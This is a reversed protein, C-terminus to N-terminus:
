KNAELFEKVKTTITKDDTAKLAEQITKLNKQLQKELDLSNLTKIGVNSPLLKAIFGKATGFTALDFVQAAGAGLKEMLNRNKLKQQLKQVDAAMRAVLKQTNITSALVADIEKSIPDNFKERLLRKLDKRTNEAAQKSLGSALQGNANFGTLDAGHMRALDNIDKATLEGKKLKQELEVITKLKSTSNTASYFDKLEDISTKVPSITVTSGDALKVKETLDKLKFVQPSTSLIEDQKESLFRVQDGLSDTLEKYSFPKSTDIDINSLAQKAQRIDFGLRTPNTARSNVVQALAQEAKVQNPKITPIKINKTQEVVDSIVEQTQALVQPAKTAVQQSGTTIVEDLKGVVQSAGKAGVGAGTVSLLGNVIDALAAINQYAEPNTTKLEQRKEETADVFEKIQPVAYVSQIANSLAGKVREEDEQSLVAKVGGKFLEGSVDAIAGLGAGGSQLVRSGLGQERTQVDAYQQGRKQIANSIGQVTQSLDQRLESQPKPIMTQQPRTSLLGKGLFDELKQNRQPVTSKTQKFTKAVEEIDAQTPQRDFEVIQGNEFEVKYM